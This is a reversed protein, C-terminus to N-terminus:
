FTAGLSIRAEFENRQVGTVVETNYSDDLTLDLTLNEWFGYSLTSSFDFRYQGANVPELNPYFAFKQSLKLNKKIKWDWDEALRLFFSELNDADRRYQTEYDVGSEFDLATDDTQIMHRGLGPGVQYQLDIKNVEDFGVGASSYGYYSGALDFDTKNNGNARNASQKGDTRQYQGSVQTTNRFFHKPNSQYPKLYTLKFKGFYDQQSTAAILSDLGVNIQGHWAGKPKAAPAPAPKSVAPKTGALAVKAPENTAPAPIAAIMEIPPNTGAKCGAIQAVPVSLVGAWANSIVLQNTGVSIIVGSVQDGSKLQLIANQAAGPYTGILVLFLTFCGLIFISPENKPLKSIM